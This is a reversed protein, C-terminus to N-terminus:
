NDVHTFLNCFMRLNTYCYMFMSESTLNKNTQHLLVRAERKVLQLAMEIESGRSNNDLIMQDHATPDRSVKYVPHTAMSLLMM